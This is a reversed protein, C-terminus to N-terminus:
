LSLQGNYVMGFNLGSEFGVYESTMEFWYEVTDGPKFYIAPTYNDYELANEFSQTVNQTQIYLILKEALKHKTEWSFTVTYIDEGVPNTILQVNDMVESPNALFIFDETLKNSDVTNTKTSSYELEVTYRGLDIDKIEEGNKINRVSKNHILNGNKYLKINSYFIDEHSELDENKVIVDVKDVSSNYQYTIPIKGNLRSYTSDLKEWSTLNFVDAQVMRPFTKDWNPTKIDDEDEIPTFRKAMFFSFDNGFYNAEVEKVNEGQTVYEVYKFYDNEDKTSKHTRFVDVSSQNQIDIGSFENGEDDQFDGFLDVEDQFDPISTHCKLLENTNRIFEKKEPNAEIRKYTVDKSDRCTLSVKFEDKGRFCEEAPRELEKTFGIVEKQSPTNDDYDFILTIDSVDNKTYNFAFNIFPQWSKVIKNYKFLPKISTVTIQPVNYTLTFEVSAEKKREGAYDIMDLIHYATAKYEGDPYLHHPFNFFYGYKKNEEDYSESEWLSHSQKVNYLVSSEDAKLAELKFQIKDMESFNSVCWKILSNGNTVDEIVESEIKGIDDYKWMVVNEDKIQTTNGLLDEAVLYVYYQGNPIYKKYIPIEGDKKDKNLDLPFQFKIFEDAYVWNAETCDLGDDSNDIKIPKFILEASKLYSWQNDADKKLNFKYQTGDDIQEDIGLDNVFNADSPVASIKKETYGTVDNIGTVNLDIQYLGRGLSKTNGEEDEGLIYFSFEGTEDIIINSVTENGEDTIKEVRPTWNEVPVTKETCVCKMYRIEEGGSTYEGLTTKITVYPIQDWAWMVNDEDVFDESYDVSVTKDKIYEINDDFNINTTHNINQVISVSDGIGEKLVFTTLYDNGTNAGILSFKYNLDYLSKYVIKYPIILRIVDNYTNYFYITINPLSIVDDTLYVSRKDTNYLHSVRKWSSFITNISAGKDTLKKVLVEEEGDGWQIKIKHLESGKIKENSCVMNTNTFDLVFDENNFIEIYDNRIIDGDNAYITGDISFVDYIKNKYFYSM